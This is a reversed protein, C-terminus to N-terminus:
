DSKTKFKYDRSRDFDVYEQATKPDSYESIDDSPMRNGDLGPLMVLTELWRSRPIQNEVFPQLYNDLHGKDPSEIERTLANLYNVKSTRLWNISLNARFCLEAHILLMTRGNGDLFPHGYAFMGMIFGHRTAIQKKNQAIHLGESVAQRCDLPHCFYLNGKKVASAPLVDARDKGAWPYLGKFLIHHVELFDQYEIRKRTSLYDLAAPLQARFLEHEAIKVIRLNKEQEFNRLYGATDFDGFPDFV